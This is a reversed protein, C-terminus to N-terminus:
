ILRDDNNLLENTRVFCNFLISQLRLPINLLCYKLNGFGDVSQTPKEYNDPNPNFYKIELQSTM